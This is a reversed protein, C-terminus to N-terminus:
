LFGEFVAALGEAVESRIYSGAQSRHGQSQHWMSVFADGALPSRCFAEFVAALGERWRVRKTPARERAISRSQHWMLVLLMARWRAG